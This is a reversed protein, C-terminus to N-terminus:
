ESVIEIEQNLCIHWNDAAHPNGFPALAAVRFVYKGPKIQTGDALKGLWWAQVPVDRPLNHSPFSWTDDLDHVDLNTIPNSPTLYEMYDFSTASGVFKNQGPVPPYVWGHERYNAKFIKHREQLERPVWSLSETFVVFLGMKFMKSDKGDTGCNLDRAFSSVEERLTIFKAPAEEPLDEDLLIERQAFVKVCANSGGTGMKTRLLASIGSADPDLSPYGFTEDLGNAALFADLVAVPVKFGRLVTTLTM